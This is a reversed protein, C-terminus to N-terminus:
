MVEGDGKLAEVSHDFGPDLLKEFSIDFFVDTSFLTDASESVSPDRDWDWLGEQQEVVTTDLETSELEPPPLLAQARHENTLIASATNYGPVQSDAAAVLVLDQDPREQEWEREQEIDLTEDHESIDVGSEHDSTMWTRLLRSQLDLMLQEIRPRLMVEMDRFGDQFMLDLERRAAAPM